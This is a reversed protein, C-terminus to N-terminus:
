GTAALSDTVMIIIGLGFIVATMVGAVFVHLEPTDPHGLFWFDAFTVFGIFSPWGIRNRRREEPTVIEEEPAEDRM